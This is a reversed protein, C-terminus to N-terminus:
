QTGPLPSKEESLKSIISKSEGWFHLNNVRMLVVKMLRSYHPVIIVYNKISFSCFSM